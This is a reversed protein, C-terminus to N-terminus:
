DAPEVSDDCNEGAASEWGSLKRPAFWDLGAVDCLVAWTDHALERRTGPERPLRAVAHDRVTTLVPRLSAGTGKISTTIREGVFLCIACGIAAKTAISNRKRIM